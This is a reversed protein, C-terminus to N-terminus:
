TSAQCDAVPLQGGPVAPSRTARATVVPRSNIPRGTILRQYSLTHGPGERNPQPV